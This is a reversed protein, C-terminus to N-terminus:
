SRFLRRPTITPSHQARPMRQRPTRMAERGSYSGKFGKGPSQLLDPVTDGWDRATEPHGRRKAAPM